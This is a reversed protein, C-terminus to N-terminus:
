REKGIDHVYMAPLGDTKPVVCVISTCNGVINRRSDRPCFVQACDELGYTGSTRSFHWMM